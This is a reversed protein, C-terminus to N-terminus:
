VDIFRDRLSIGDMKFRVQPSGNFTAAAIDFTKMTMGRAAVHDKAARIAHVERLAHSSDWPRRKKTGNDTVPAWLASKESPVETDADPYREETGHADFSPTASTTVTIREM